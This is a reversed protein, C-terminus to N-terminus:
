ARWVVTLYSYSRTLGSRTSELQFSDCLIPIPAATPGRRQSGKGQSVAGVASVKPGILPRLDAALTTNAWGEIFKALAKGGDSGGFLSKGAPKAYKDELQHTLPSRACHHLPGDDSRPSGCSSWAGEVLVEICSTQRSSLGPRPPYLTSAPLPSYLLASSLLPSCHLAPSPPHLSSLSSLSHLRSLSSLWYPCSMVMAPGSV